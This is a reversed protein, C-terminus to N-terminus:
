EIDAIKPNMNESTNLKLKVKLDLILKFLM